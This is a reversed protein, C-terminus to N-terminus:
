DTPGRCVQGSYSLTLQGRNLDVEGHNELQGSANAFKGTGGVITYQTTMRFVGNYVLVWQATDETFLSDRTETLFTHQLTFSGGDPVPLPSTVLAAVAGRLDGTVTGLVTAPIRSLIPSASISGSVAKCVRDDGARAAFRLGFTALFLFSLVSLSFLRLAKRTKAPTPFLHQSSM